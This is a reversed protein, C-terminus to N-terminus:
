EGSFVGETLDATTAQLADDASTYAEEVTTGINREGGFLVLIIAAIVVGLILTYELISQGKKKRLMM